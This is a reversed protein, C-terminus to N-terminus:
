GAKAQTSDPASQAGSESQMPTSAQQAKSRNHQSPLKIKEDYSPDRTLRMLVRRNQQRGLPDENSAIHRREGFGEASILKPEVGEEKLFEKIANARKKSLEYNHWRGGYSDSYAGIEVKTIAPDHLLYDVVRHLRRLSELDLEDSNSRYNLVTQKVDEFGYPLLQGVCSLFNSYGSRFNASNLMVEVDGGNRYGDAYFLTPNNGQELETLVAWSEQHDLATDFGAVVRVNTIHSPTYGPKYQPPVAILKAMSGARPMRLGTLTMQVGMEKGARSEFYATGFNPIEHEMKCILPTQQTVVWDSNALSAQYLRLDAFAPAAILCFSLVTLAPKFM